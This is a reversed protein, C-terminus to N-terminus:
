INHNHDMLQLFVEEDIRNALAKESLVIGSSLKIGLSLLVAKRYAEIDTTMWELYIKNRQKNLGDVRCFIVSKDPLKDLASSISASRQKGSITGKFRGNVLLEAGNKFPNRVKVSVCQGTMAELTGNYWAPDKRSNGFCPQGNANMGLFYVEIEQGVQVENFYKLKGFQTRHKLGEISGCKWDFLHGLEVFVGYDSKRTVIGNYATHHELQYSKFVHVSGDLVIYIRESVTISHVRGFLIKGKLRPFIVSWVNMDSYYWPMYRFAVFAFLGFTKVLFGRDNCAEIKFPVHEGNQVKWQLFNLKERLHAALHDTNGEIIPSEAKEM